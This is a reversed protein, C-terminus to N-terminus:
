AVRRDNKITMDKIETLMQLYLLSTMILNEKIKPIQSESARDIMNWGDEAHQVDVLAHGKLFVATKKGHASEVRAALVGATEASLLELFQSYGCLSIPDDHQIQYYQSKILSSASPLFNFQDPTHGMKELDSLLWLDHGTEEKLHHMIELFEKKSELPIRLAFACLLRPTHSVLFYQQALWHKYFDPNEWPLTQIFTASSRVTKEFDSKLSM